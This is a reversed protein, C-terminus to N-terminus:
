QEEDDIPWGVLYLESIGADKYKTGDYTDIITLRVRGGNGGGEGLDSVIQAFKGFSEQNFLDYNKDELVRRGLEDTRMYQADSVPYFEVNLAAPRSNAYYLEKSKTYGNVVVIGALAFREFTIEIWEGKGDGKPFWATTFDRDMINAPAYAAKDELTSSATISLVRDGSVSYKTFYRSKNLDEIDYEVVVPGMSAPDADTLELRYVGPSTEKFGKPFLSLTKGGLAENSTNNVVINLKGIRGDGWGAAPSPDYLFVRSSFGPMFSKNTIFDELLVPTTYEIEVTKEQGANFFLTSAYWSRKLSDYSVWGFFNEMETDDVMTLAPPSQEDEKVTFELPEDDDYIAYEVGPRREPYYEQVEPNIDVPFAFGVEADPGTNELTYTVRVQAKDGMLMIELLEEKLLINEAKTLRVNGTRVIETLDLPGGNASALIPCLFLCLCAFLPFLVRKGLARSHNHHKSM